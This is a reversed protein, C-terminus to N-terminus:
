RFGNLINEMEPSYFSLTTQWGVRSSFKVQLFIIIKQLHLKLESNVYEFKYNM